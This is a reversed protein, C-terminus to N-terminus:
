RAHGDTARDDDWEAYIVCADPSVSGVMAHAGARPQGPSGTARHDGAHDAGRCCWFERPLMTHKPSTIPCVNRAKMDAVTVGIGPHDDTPGIPLFHPHHIRFM